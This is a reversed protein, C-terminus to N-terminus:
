FLGPSPSTGGRTSSILGITHPSNFILFFINLIGRSKTEPKIIILKDKIAKADEDPAAVARDALGEIRINFIDGPVEYRYGNVIVFPEM